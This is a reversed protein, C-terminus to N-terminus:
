IRRHMSGSQSRLAASLYRLSHLCCVIIRSKRLQRRRGTPGISSYIVVGQAWAWVHVVTLLGVTITVFWLHVTTLPGLKIEM